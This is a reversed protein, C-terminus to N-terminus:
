KELNKRFSSYGEPLKRGQIRSAPLNKSWSCHGEPLKDCKKRKLKEEGFVAVCFNQKLVGFTNEM